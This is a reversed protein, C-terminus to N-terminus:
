PAPMDERKPLPTDPSFANFFDVENQVYRKIRDYHRQHMSTTPRPTYWFPHTTGAESNSPVQVEYIKYKDHLKKFLAHKNEISLLSQSLQLLIDASLESRRFGSIEYDDVLGLVDPELYQELFLLRGEDPAMALVHIAEEVVYLEKDSFEKVSSLIEEAISLVTDNLDPVRLCHLVGAVVAWDVPEKNYADVLTRVLYQREESGRDYKLRQERLAEAEGLTKPWPNSDILPGIFQERFIELLRPERDKVLEVWDPAPIDGVAVQSIIAFMVMTCYCLYFRSTRM